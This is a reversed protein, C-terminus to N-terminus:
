VVLAGKAAALGEAGGSGMAMVAKVAARVAGDTPEVGGGVGAALVGLAEGPRGSRLLANMAAVVGKGTPAVGGMTAFLAAAEGAKGARLLADMAIEYSAGDPKATTPGFLTGAAMGELAAVVADVDDQQSALAMLYANCAGVDAGAKLSEIRAKLASADADSGKALATLLATRAAADSTLDIQATAAIRTHQRTHQHPIPPIPHTYTDVYWSFFLSLWVVVFMSVM